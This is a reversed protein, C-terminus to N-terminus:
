WLQLWLTPKIYEFGDALHIHLSQIYNPSSSPFDEEHVEIIFALSHGEYSLSIGSAHRIPATPEVLKWSTEARVFSNLLGVHTIQCASPFHCCEMGSAPIPIFTPSCSTILGQSAHIKLSSLKTDICSLNRQESCTRHWVKGELNGQCSLSLGPSTKTNM